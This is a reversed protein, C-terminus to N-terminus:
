RVGNTHRSGHIERAKLLRLLRLARVARLSRLTSLDGPLPREAKMVKMGGFLRIM